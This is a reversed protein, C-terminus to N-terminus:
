INNLVIQLYMIFAYGTCASNYGTPISWYGETNGTVKNLNISIIPTKLPNAKCNQYEMRSSANELTMLCEEFDNETSVCYYWLKIMQRKKSWTPHKWNKVVMSLLQVRKHIFKIEKLYNM